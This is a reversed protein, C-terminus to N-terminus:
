REEFTLTTALPVQRVGTGRVRNRPAFIAAPKLPRLWGDRKPWGESALIPLGGNEPHGSPIAGRPLDGRRRRANM